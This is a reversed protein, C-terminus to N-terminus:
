GSRGKDSPRQGTRMDGVNEGRHCTPVLLKHGVRLHTTPVKATFLTIKSGMCGDKKTQKEIKCPDYRKFRIDSKKYKLEQRRSRLFLILIPSM